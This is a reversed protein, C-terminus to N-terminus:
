DLLFSSNIDWGPFVIVGSRTVLDRAEEVTLAESAPDYEQLKQVLGVVVEDSDGPKMQLALENQKIKFLFSKFEDSKIFNDDSMFERAENIRDDIM